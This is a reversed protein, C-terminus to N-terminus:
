ENYSNQIFPIGKEFVKLTVADCLLSMAGIKEDTELVSYNIGYNKEFTSYKFNYKGGAKIKSKQPAIVKVLKQINVM